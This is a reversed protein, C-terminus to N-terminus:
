KRKIEFRRSIFYLIVFLLAIGGLVSFVVALPLVFFRFAQTDFQNGYGKYLELEATYLGFSFSKGPWSIEQYRTSDPLAFYADVPIQAIEAGFINKINITGYPVLHVTGDNKFSIEFSTPMKQRFLAHPGSIKFTDLYGSENVEGNIRMLILSGIRSTLRTGGVVENGNGDLAGPSENSVIIAGYHGGPEIDAPTTITVAFTMKEGFKLSFEQLESSVYESLPYPTDVGAPLLVVASEPNDSGIFNEVGVKFTLERNTRNTVSINKTVTEGPNLFVETKGPEVVFDDNNEVGLKTITYAHAKAFSFCFIVAALAFFMFANRAYTSM